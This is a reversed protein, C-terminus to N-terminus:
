SGLATGEALYDAWAVPERQLEAIRRATERGVREGKLAAVDNPELSLAERYLRIGIGPINTNYINNGLASLSLPQVIDARVRGASFNCYITSNNPNIAFTAKRLVAGVADSPRVVVRGVAMSIDKSTFGSTPLCSALAQQNYGASVVTLAAVGAYLKLKMSM